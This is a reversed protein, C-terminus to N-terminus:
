PKFTGKNDLVNQMIAELRLSPAPYLKGFAVARKAKIDSNPHGSTGWEFAYEILEVQEMSFWKRLYKVIMEYEIGGSIQQGESYYPRIVEYGVKRVKLREFRSVACVFLAGLACACIEQGKQRFVEQLEVDRQLQELTPHKILKVYSGREVSFRKRRLGFVVDRAVELRIRRKEEATLPSKLTKPKITDKAKTM